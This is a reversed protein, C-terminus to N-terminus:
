DPDGRLALVSGPGAAVATPEGRVRRWSGRLAAYERALPPPDPHGVLSAGRGMSPILVRPEVCGDVAKEDM